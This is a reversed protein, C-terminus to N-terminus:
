GQRCLELMPPVLDAIQSGITSYWEASQGIPDAIDSTEDVVLQPRLAALSGRM